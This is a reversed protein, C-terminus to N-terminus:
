YSGSVEPMQSGKVTVVILYTIYLALNAGVYFIWLIGIGGVSLSFSGVLTDGLMDLALITLSILTNFFIYIIGLGVFDMQIRKDLYKISILGFTITLFIDIGLGIFPIGIYFSNIFGIIFAIMLYYKIESVNILQSARSDTMFYITFLFVGFGYVIVELLEVIHYVESLVGTLQILLAGLSVIISTLFILYYNRYTM